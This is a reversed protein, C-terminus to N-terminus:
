DIATGMFTAQFRMAAGSTNRVTLMIEKGLEATDCHIEAGQTEQSFTRASIPGSAVFQSKNGVKLDIIDFSGAIDSPVIMREIRFIMQPRTPLDQVDGPLVDVTSRLGMSLKRVRQPDERRVQVVRANPPLTGQPRPAPQRPRVAVQPRAIAVRPRAIVQRAPRAFAPRAVRRAPMFRQPMRMAPRLIRRPASVAGSAAAMLEDADADGVAYQDDDAGIIEEAGIIDDGFDDGVAYDDEDGAVEYLQGDAGVVYSEDGALISDIDDGGAWADEDAGIIEYSM